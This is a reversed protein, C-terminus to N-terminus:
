CSYRWLVAVALPVSLNDAGLLAVQELATATGVMALLMLPEPAAPLQVLSLVLLVLLSAVAMTSTGALSRREGLVRWTPSPVWPGVLGALGDGVAMVLVGACVADAREPWFWALLLTISLGYAVTGYSERGVDEIAPLVRQRHNFAALLTILAAASLALWRDIGTAWALPVVAGSGIHVVKRSWEPQLSWRRRVFLAVLALLVLWGSVVAVGFGQRVWAPHAELWTM